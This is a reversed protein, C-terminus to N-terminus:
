THVADRDARLAGVRHRRRVPIATGVSCRHVYRNVSQGIHLDVTARGETLTAGGGDGGRTCGGVLPAGALHRLRHRGGVRAGVRHRTGVLVTTRGCLRHIDGLRRHVGGDRGAVTVETMSLAGRQCNGTIRAICVNPEVAARRILNLDSGCAGVRDRHGIRGATLLRQRRNHAFISHRRRGNAAVQGDTFARGGRKARGATGRVLPVIAIHARHDRHVGRTGIRHRGGVSVATRGGSGCRHQHVRSRRDIDQCLIRYAASLTDRQRGDGRRVAEVPVGTLVRRGDVHRGRQSRVIRHQHGILVATRGRGGRLDCDILQRRGVHATGGGDTLAVGGHKRSGAAHGVLPTRALEVVM